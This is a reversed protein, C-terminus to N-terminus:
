ASSLCALRWPLTWRDSPWRSTAGRVARPSYPGCNILMEHMDVGWQQQAEILRNLVPLDGRLAAQCFAFSGDRQLPLTLDTQEDKATRLLLNLADLNRVYTFLGGEHVARSFNVHHIKALQLLHVLMQPHESRAADFLADYSNAELLSQM